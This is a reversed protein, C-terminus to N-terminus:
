PSLWGPRRRMTVSSGRGTPSPNTFICFINRSTHHHLFIYHCQILSGGTGATNKKVPRAIDTGHGLLLKCLDIGLRAPYLVIGHLDPRRLQRHCRLAHCHNARLRLLNRGNSNCVLPLRRDEPVFAGPFRHIVSHDPLAAPSRIHDFFQLRITKVSDDPLLRAQNGVCVEARGLYCPDQPINRPGFLFRLRSFQKEPRHIGPQDPVQGLALNMHRVVCVGGSGHEKVDVPKAPILLDQLPKVDRCPYQGTHFRGATDEPM